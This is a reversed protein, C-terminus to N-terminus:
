VHGGVSRLVDNKYKKNSHIVNPKLEKQKVM